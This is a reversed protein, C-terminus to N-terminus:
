YRGPPTKYRPWCIFPGCTRALLVDGNGTIWVAAPPKRYTILKGRGKAAADYSVQWGDNECVYPRVETGDNWSVEMDRVLDPLSRPRMGQHSSSYRQLASYLVRLDKTRDRRGSTVPLRMVHMLLLLVIIGLVALGAIWLGIRSATKLRRARNAEM